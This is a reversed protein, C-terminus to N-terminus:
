NILLKLIKMKNINRDLILKQNYQIIITSYEKLFYLINSFDYTNDHDYNQIEYNAYFTNECFLFGILGIGDNKAQFPYIINQKPIKNHYNMHIKSSSDIMFKEIYIESFLEWNLVMKGFCYDRNELVCWSHDFNCAKNWTHIGILIKGYYQEPFIFYNKDELKLIFEKRIHNRAHILNLKNQKSLNM